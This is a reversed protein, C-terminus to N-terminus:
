LIQIIQSIKYLYKGSEKLSPIRFIGPILCFIFSYIFSIFLGILSNIFLHKQTNKYVISFCSIYYWFLILLLISIIYFCVFKIILCKIVTIAKPELNYENKEYKIELINRQTLVLNKLIIDIISSIIVSYIIQPLFCFFNYVGKDKYIKHMIYDNFFLANTVLNLAFLFFISM